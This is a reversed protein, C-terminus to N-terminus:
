ASLSTCIYISQSTQWAKEKGICVSETPGFNDYGELPIILVLIFDLMANFESRSDAFMM